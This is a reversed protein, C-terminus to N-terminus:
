GHAVAPSIRRKNADNEAFGSSVSMSSSRSPSRFNSRVRNRRREPPSCCRSDSAIASTPRGSSTKRSSGVAPM